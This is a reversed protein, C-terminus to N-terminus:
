LAAELVSHLPAYERGQWTSSCKLRVQQRRRRRKGSAAKRVWVIPDVEVALVCLLAGVRVQHGAAEVRHMGGHPEALLLEAPHGVRHLAKDTGVELEAARLRQEVAEEEQVPAGGDAEIM